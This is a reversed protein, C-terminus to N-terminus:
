WCFFYVCSVTNNVKGDTALQTQITQGAPLQLFLEDEMGFCKQHSESIRGGLVCGQMQGQMWSETHATHTMQAQGRMLETVDGESLIDKEAECYKDEGGDSRSSSTLPHFLLILAGKRRQGGETQTESSTLLWESIPNHHPSLCLPTSTLSISFSYFSLLRYCHLFHCSSLAFPSSSPKFHAKSSRAKCVARCNM